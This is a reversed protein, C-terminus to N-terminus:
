KNKLGEKPNQPCKKSYYEKWHCNFCNVKSIDRDKGEKTPVINVDTALFDTNRGQGEQGGRRRPNRQHDQNKKPNFSIQQTSSFQIRNSTDASPSDISKNKENSDKKEKRAPRNGKPCRSDMNRTSVSSQFMAKVEANVTKEEGRGLLEPGPKPCGDPGLCFTEPRESLM